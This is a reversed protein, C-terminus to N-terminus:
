KWTEALWQLTGQETLAPLNPDTPRFYGGNAKINAWILRVTDGDEFPMALSGQYASLWVAGVHAELTDPRQLVELLTATPLFNSTPAIGLKEAFTATQRDIGSPWTTAAAWTSPSAGNCTMSNVGKPQRSAFTAASVFGSATVCTGAAVPASALTLLVPTAVGLSRRLMRRRALMRGAAEAGDTVAAPSSARESMDM